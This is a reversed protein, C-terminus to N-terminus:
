NSEDIEGGLEIIVTGKTNTTITSQPPKPVGCTECEWYNLPVGFPIEIWRIFMPKGCKPCLEM